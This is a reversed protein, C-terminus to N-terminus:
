LVWETPKAMKYIRGSYSGGSVSITGASADGASQTPKATPKPLDSDTAKVSATVPSNSTEKLDLTHIEKMKRLHKKESQLKM